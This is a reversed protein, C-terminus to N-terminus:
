ALLSIILVALDLSRLTVEVLAEVFEFEAECESLLLELTPTITAITTNTTTTKIMM